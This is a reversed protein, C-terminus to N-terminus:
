IWEIQIRGELKKFDPDGTVLVANQKMATVAAFCDAFSIAFKSKIKAAGIVDQFSNEARQVPLSPFILKLFLEAQEEGRERELIFYIEGINIDNIFIQPDEETLFVRVKEFQAEKKLYALLAFSDFVRKKRMAPM